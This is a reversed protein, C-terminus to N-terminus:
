WDRKRSKRVKKRTNHERKDIKEYAFIESTFAQDEEIQIFKAVKKCAQRNEYEVRLRKRRQEEQAIRKKERTEREKRM